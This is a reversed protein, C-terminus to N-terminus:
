VVWCKDVLGNEALLVPVGKRFFWPINQQKLFEKLLVEKEGGKLKDGFSVKVKMGDEFRLLRSKINVMEDQFNKCVLDFYYDELHKLDMNSVLIKQDFVYLFKQGIEKWRGSNGRLLMEDIDGFNAKGMDLQEVQGSLKQLIIFRLFNASKAYSRLDIEWGYDKLRGNEAIWRDVKDLLYEDLERYFQGSELLRQTLGEFRNELSPVIENRLFNRDFKNDNNSEDIVWRLGKEKAYFELDKKEAFLLPRLLSKKKLMFEMGALGKIFTGKLFGALITEIQDNAHHATVIWDAGYDKRAQEFFNYRVLRANAELNGQLKPVDIRTSVCKIGLDRCVGEVFERESKSEERIGHDVHAVIIQETEFGLCFLDLLVMSDVGGSVALVFKHNQWNFQDIMNLKLFNKFKGSLDFM